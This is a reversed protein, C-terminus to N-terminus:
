VVSYIQVNFKIKGQKEGEFNGHNLFITLEGTHRQLSFRQGNDDSFADESQAAKSRKRPEQLLPLGLM